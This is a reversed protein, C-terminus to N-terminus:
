CLHSDLQSLAHVARRAVAFCMCTVCRLVCLVAGCREAAVVHELRARVHQEALPPFRFRTARSQLAPIIKSM